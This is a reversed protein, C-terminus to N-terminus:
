KKLDIYIERVTEVTTMIEELTNYIGLSFRLTSKADEDSLGIAKLVHSPEVAGSTCASGASACIGAMDLRILMSDAKVGPFTVNLNGPVRFDVSGNMKVEPIAELLMKWMTDRLAKEKEYREMLTNSVFEAARGFGVIGSVNETGGRRAREQSGGHILAGIKVGKRIYLAGVGKPGYVKHSSISIMDLNCEDLDIPVHGYAQVCDSHFLIGHEKAIKGIEVIPEVTGIENNAFMVTILVTNPKIAAKVDEPDVMGASDVDLLTVEHGMKEAFELTHLIAHHEIKSSIIHCKEGPHSALTSLIAWNDAESGGSTFFITDPTVGLSKAVKRRAKDIANRAEVGFQYVASPNAYQDMIFPFMDDYASKLLKTSAANDLYIM